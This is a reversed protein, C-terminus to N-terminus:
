CVNLRIELMKECVTRQLSLKDELSPEKCESYKFNRQYTLMNIGYPNLWLLVKGCSVLTQKNTKYLLFKFM